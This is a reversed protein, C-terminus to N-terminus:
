KLFENICFHLCWRLTVKYSVHGTEDLNGLKIGRLEELGRESSRGIVRQLKSM